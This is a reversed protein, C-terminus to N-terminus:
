SESEGVLLSIAAIGGLMMSMTDTVSSMTEMLTSQNQITFADEDQGFRNMMLETLTAEAADLTEESM